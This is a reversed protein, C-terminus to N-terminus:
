LKLLILIKLLKQFKKLIMRSKISWITANLVRRSKKFSEKSVAGVKAESCISKNNASGSGRKEARPFIQSSGPLPKGPKDTGYGKCVEQWIPDGLAEYKGAHASFTRALSKYHRGARLSSRSLCCADICNVKKFCITINIVRKAPKMNRTFYSIVYHNEDKSYFFPFLRLINQWISIVFHNM